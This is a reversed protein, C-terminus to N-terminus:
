NERQKDEFSRTFFFLKKDKHFKGKWKRSNFPFNWLFLSSSHQYHFYCSFCHLNLNQNFVFDFKKISWSYFWHGILPYVKQTTQTSHSFIQIFSELSIPFNKDLSFGCNVSNRNLFFAKKKILFTLFLNLDLFSIPNFRNELNFICEEQTHYQIKVNQQNTVFHVCVCVRIM